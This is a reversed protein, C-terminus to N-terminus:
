NGITVSMGGLVSEIGGGSGRAQKDRLELIQMETLNSTDPAQTRAQQPQHVDQFGQSVKGGSGPTQENGIGGQSNLQAVTFGNAEEDSAMGVSDRPYETDQPTRLFSMLHETSTANRHQKTIVTQAEEHRLIEIMGMDVNALVNSDLEDGPRLVSFDGRWGRAKLSHTKGEETKVRQPSFHLNRIYFKNPTPTPAASGFRIDNLASALKRGELEVEVEIAEIAEVGTADPEEVLRAVVVEGPIASLDAEVELVEDLSLVKVAVPAGRIEELTQTKQADRDKTEARVGALTDQVEKLEKFEAATLGLAKLAQARTPKKTPTKKPAPEPM